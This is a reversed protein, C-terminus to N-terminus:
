TQLNQLKKNVSKTIDRKQGPWVYKKGNFDIWAVYKICNGDKEIKWIQYTKPSDKFIDHLYELYRINSIYWSKLITHLPYTRSGWFFHRFFGFIEFCVWGQLYKSKFKNMNKQLLKYTKNLCIDYNDGSFWRECFLATIWKSLYVCSM